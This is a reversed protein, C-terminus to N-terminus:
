FYKNKVYMLVFFLKVHSVYTLFNWDNFESLRVKSMAFYNAFILGMQSDTGTPEKCPTYCISLFSSSVQNSSYQAVMTWSMHVSTQHLQPEKCPQTPCFKLWYIAWLKIRLYSSFLDQVLKHMCDFTCSNVPLCVYSKWTLSHTQARAMNSSYSWWKRLGVDPAECPELKCLKCDNLAWIPGKNADGHM